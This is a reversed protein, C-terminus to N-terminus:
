RLSTLYRVIGRRKEPDAVGPAMMRTGPVVDRPAALFTDLTGASWTLGSARMADSYAYGEASGAPRGAIGFLNPGMGHPADRETAHCSACTAFAVPPAAPVAATGNDPAENEVRVENESAPQPAVPLVNQLPEVVNPTSIAEPANTEAQPRPADPSPAPSSCSLLIVPASVVLALRSM